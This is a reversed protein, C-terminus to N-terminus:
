AESDSTTIKFHVSVENFYSFPLVQYSIKTIQLREFDNLVLVLAVLIFLTNNIVIILRFAQPKMHTIPFNGQSKRYVM